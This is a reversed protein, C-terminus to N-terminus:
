MIISDISKKRMYFSLVYFDISKIKMCIKLFIFDM